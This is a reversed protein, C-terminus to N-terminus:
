YGFYTQYMATTNDQVNKLKERVATDKLNYLLNGIKIQSITYATEAM